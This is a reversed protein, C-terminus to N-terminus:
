CWQSCVSRERLLVIHIFSLILSRSQTVKWLFDDKHLSPGLLLLLQTSLDLTLSALSALTSNPTKNALPPLVAVQIHIFPSIDFCPLTCQSSLSRPLLLRHYCATILPLQSDAPAASQRQRLPPHSLLVCNAAAAHIKDNNKQKATVPLYQGQIFENCSWVDWHHRWVRLLQMETKSILLCLHGFSLQYRPGMAALDDSDDREQGKDNMSIMSYTTWGATGRSTAPRSPCWYSWFPVCGNPAGIVMTHSCKM